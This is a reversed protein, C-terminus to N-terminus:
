NCINKYIGSTHNLYIYIHTNINEGFMILRQPMYRAPSVNINSNTRHQCELGARPDWQVAPM